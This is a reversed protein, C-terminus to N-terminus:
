PPLTTPTSGGGPGQRPSCAGGEPAGRPLRVTFLSGRGVESQVQITGGHLEVMRRASALGVGSGSVDRSVNSGRHFREFVHPLDEAPIGIGEDSVALRVGDQPDGHEEALLITVTTGPASYKVANGLLNELVRELAQADWYGTLDEGDEHLVFHHGSSAELAHVESSVLARLDMRARRLPQEQGRTADLFHDVLDGMRHAARVIHELRSEHTPKLVDAPLQRRLVQANLAIIQLPGKLDHTALAFLEDRVALAEQAAREAREARVRRDELERTMRVTDVASRLSRRLRDPSYNDKVLYDQAGAKMAEVAVRESGSGTLMVVAPAGAPYRAQLERLLGLGTMGPLHYDMLVVDPLVAHIRALAEEASGATELAWASETDRELARRVALRDAPSDDVLLVCLSM